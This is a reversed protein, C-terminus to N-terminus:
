GGRRTSKMSVKARRRGRRVLMLGGWGLLALSAPEPVSAVGSVVPAVLASGFHDDLIGYDVADVNGDANFDGAALGGPAGFNMALADFDFVDVTNDGNADPFFETLTDVSAQGFSTSPSASWAFGLEFAEPSGPVTFRWLHTEFFSEGFETPIEFSSTEEYYFGTLQTADFGNYTIANPETTQIQGGWSTTQVLVHTMYGGALDYSPVTIVPQIVGTFSYINGSSSRFAGSSTNKDFADASGNPNVDNDPINPGFVNAYTGTAGGGPVWEQYTTLDGAAQGTNSPRTWTPNQFFALAPAGTVVLVCATVTLGIAPKRLYM